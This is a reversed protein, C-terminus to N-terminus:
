KYSQFGQKWLVQKTLNKRTKYVKHWDNKKDIMVNTMNKVWTM